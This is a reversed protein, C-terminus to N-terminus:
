EDPTGVLGGHAIRRIHRQFAGPSLGTLSRFERSLHAQDAFGRAAAVDSWPGDPDSAVGAASGRVRRLRALEKPSLEVAARFRRRLQRASLGVVGPLSGISAQGESRLITFVASMAASDLAGARPVLECLHRDFCEVAAAEDAVEHLGRALSGAWAADLRAAAPVAQERLGHAGLLAQGAGPWFHVGRFVDGSRVRPRLPTLRPGFLLVDERSASCALMVAGTLPVSHEIEPAGVAVRFHWYAAVYSALARCPRLEAYYMSPQLM